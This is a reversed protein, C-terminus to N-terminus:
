EREGQSERRRETVQLLLSVSHAQRRFSYGLGATFPSCLFVSCPLPPQPPFIRSIQSFLRFSSLALSTSIAPQLCISIGIKKKGEEERSILPTSLLAKVARTPPTVITTRARRDEGEGVARRHWWVNQNPKRKGGRLLVLRRLFQFPVEPPSTVFSSLNPFLCLPSCSFVAYSSLSPPPLSSYSASLLPSSLIVGPCVTHSYVLAWKKKKKKKKKIKQGEDTRKRQWTCCRIQLIHLCKGPLSCTECQRICVHANTCEDLIIIFLQPTHTNTHTVTLPTPTHIPLPPLSSKAKLSILRKHKQLSTHWSFLTHAHM